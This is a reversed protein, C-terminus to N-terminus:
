VKAGAKQSLSNSMYFSQDILLEIKLGAFNMIFNTKYVENFMNVTGNTPGTLTSKKVEHSQSNSGEDDYDSNFTFCNGFSAENSPM